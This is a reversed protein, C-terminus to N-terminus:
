WTRKFAAKVSKSIDGAAHESVAGTVSIPGGFLKQEASLSRTWKDDSSSIAAGVSVTTDAPLITFRVAQDTSVAQPTGAAAAVGPGLAQSVAYGGQWTMSVTGDDLPLSRSLTVGLSGQQQPDVRTALAAKDWGWEPTPATLTAWAAGSTRDGSDAGVKGDWGNNPTAAFKSADIPRGTPPPLSFDVPGDFVEESPEDSPADAPQAAALGAYVCALTGLAASLLWRQLIMTQLM